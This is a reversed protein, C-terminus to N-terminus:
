VGARAVAILEDAQDQHERLVRRPVFRAESPRAPDLGYDHVCRRWSRAIIPDRDGSQQPANALSLVAEIHSAPTALLTM